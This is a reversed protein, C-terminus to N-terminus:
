ATIAIRDDRHDPQDPHEQEAQDDSPAMSTTTPRSMPVVLAFATAKSALAGLAAAGVHGVFQGLGLRAVRHLIRGLHGVAGQAGRRSAMAAARAPPARTAASDHEDAM